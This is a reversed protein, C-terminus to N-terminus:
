SWVGSVDDALLSLVDDEEEDDSGDQNAAAVTSTSGSSSSSVSVIKAPDNTGLTSFVEDVGEEESSNSAPDSLMAVQEGNGESDSM